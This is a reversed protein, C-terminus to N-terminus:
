VTQRLKHQRAAYVVFVIVTFMYPIMLVLKPPLGTGSTQLLNALGLAAGFLLASMATRIFSGAGLSAAILGIWGRGATMDQVFVGLSLSTYAGALGSLLGSILIAQWQLRSVSLGLSAVGASNEGVARLRWGFATRYVILAVLGVCLWSIYVFITHGSVVDGLVPIKDILPLRVAPLVPTGPIQVVGASGFMMRTIYGTAAAAFLNTALGVIFINGRLSLSFFAFLASLAIGGLVGVVIGLVLNGTTAATMLAAFAAFLMMGELAINTVGGMQTLAGGLSALLVPTTVRLISFFLFTTVNQSIWEM